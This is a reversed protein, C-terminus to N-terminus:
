RQHQAAHGEPEAAYAEGRRHKGLGGTGDGVAMQHTTLVAGPQPRDAEEDVEESEDDLELEGRGIEGVCARECSCKKQMETVHEGTEIGGGLGSM